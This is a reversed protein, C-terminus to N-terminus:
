RDGDARDPVERAQGAEQPEPRELAARRLEQVVYIGALGIVVIGAVASHERWSSPMDALSGTLSAGILAVGGPISFCALFTLVGPVVHGVQFCRGRALRLLAYLAAGALGLAISLTTTDM